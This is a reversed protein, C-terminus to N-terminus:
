GDAAAVSHIVPLSCSNGAVHSDALCTSGNRITTDVAEATGNESEHHLCPETKSDTNSAQSSMTSEQEDLSSTEIPDVVPETESTKNSEISQSGVPGEHSDATQKLVVGLVPHYVLWGPPYDAENVFAPELDCTDHQVLGTTVPRVIRRATNDPLSELEPLEDTYQRRGLRLLNVLSNWADAGSQYWDRLNRQWDHVIDTAHALITEPFLVIYINLAANMKITFTKKNM